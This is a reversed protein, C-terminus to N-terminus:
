VTQAADQLASYLAAKVVPGAQGDVPLGHTTQFVKVAAATKAGASGDEVLTPSAGLLNLAKQVDAITNIPHGTAVQHARQGIHAHTAALATLAAQLAAMLRPSVMTDPQMSHAVQFTGVATRTPSDTIGTQAIPGYGLTNLAGQADKITQVSAPASGSPTIISVAGDTHAVVQVPTGDPSTRRISQLQGGKHVLAVVAGVLAAAGAGIKAALPIHM